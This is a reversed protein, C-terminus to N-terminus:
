IVKKLRKLFIRKGPLRIERYPEWLVTRTFSTLGTSESVVEDVSVVVEMDGIVYSGTVEYSVPPVVAVEGHSEEEPDEVSQALPVLSPPQYFGAHKRHM